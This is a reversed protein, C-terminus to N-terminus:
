RSKKPSESWPLIQKMIEISYISVQHCFTLVTQGNVEAGNPFSKFEIM